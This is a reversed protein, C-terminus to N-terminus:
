IYFFYDGQDEIIDKLLHPMDAGKLIADKFEPYKKVMYKYVLKYVLRQYPVLLEEAFSVLRMAKSYYKDSLSKPVFRYVNRYLGFSAGVDVRYHWSSSIDYVYIFGVRNLLFAIEVGIQYLKSVECTMTPKNEMSSCM